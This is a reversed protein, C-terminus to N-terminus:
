TPIVSAMGLNMHLKHGRYNSISQNYLEKVQVFRNIHSKVKPVPAEVQPVFAVTCGYIGHVVKVCIVATKHKGEMDM